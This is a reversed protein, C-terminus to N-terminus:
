HERIDFHFLFNGVVSFSLPRLKIQAPAPIGGRAPAGDTPISSENDSRYRESTFNIQHLHWHGDYDAGLFSLFDQTAQERAQAQAARRMQDVTSSFIGKKVADVKAASRANVDSEELDNLPWLISHLENYFGKVLEPDIFDTEAPKTQTIQIDQSAYYKNLCPDEEGGGYYQRTGQWTSILAINYDINGSETRDIQNDIWEKFVGVDNNISNWAATQDSYCSSKFKLQYTVFDGEHYVKASGGYIANGVDNNAFSSAAMLFITLFTLRHM